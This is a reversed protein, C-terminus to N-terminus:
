LSVGTEINYKFEVTSWREKFHKLGANGIPVAGFNVQEIQPSDSAIEVMSNLIGNTANLKSYARDSANLWYFIENKSFLFVSFAIITNEYDAAIFSISKKELLETFTELKLGGHVNHKKLMDCYLEYCRLVDTHKKVTKYTIGSKTAKRIQNRTKYHFSSLINDYPRKTDLVWTSVEQRKKLVSRYQLNNYNAIHYRSFHPLPISGKIKKGVYGGYGGLPFSVLKGRKKKIFLPLAGVLNSNEYYEFGALRYNPFSLAVASLWAPNHFPTALPSSSILKKYSESIEINKIKKLTLTTM